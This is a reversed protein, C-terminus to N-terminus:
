GLKKLVLDVRRSPPARTRASSKRLAKRRHRNIQKRAHTRTCCQLALEMCHTQGISHETRPQVNLSGALQREEEPNEVRLGPKLTHQTVGGWQMTFTVSKNRGSEPNGPSDTATNVTNLRSRASGCQPQSGIKFTM